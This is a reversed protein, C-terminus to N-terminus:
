AGRTGPVVPEATGTASAVAQRVLYGAADIRSYGNTVTPDNMSLGPAYYGGTAVEILRAVAQERSGGDGFDWPPM